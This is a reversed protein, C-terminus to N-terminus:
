NKMLPRTIKLTNVKTMLLRQYGIIMIINQHTKKMMHYMTMKKELITFIDM